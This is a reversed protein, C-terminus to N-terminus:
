NGNLIFAARRSLWYPISKLYYAYKGTRHAVTMFERIGTAISGEKLNYLATNIYCETIGAENLKQATTAGKEQLCKALWHRLQLNASAMRRINQSVSTSHVRVLAWTDPNDSFHMRAGVMACRLWYEWDEMSRLRENFYGVQNILSTRVLPSNVVMINCQVLANILEEGTEPVGVTWQKDLMDFSRSLVDPIGHRFFRVDGYILDTDPNKRLYDLQVEFKHSMLLDDADLFQVYEGSAIRLGSNRAASMGANTQYIYKFRADRAQYEESVIRTTDTSGDDIIICEWTPYTQALLSELTEALVWGYNFCPIIISILGM